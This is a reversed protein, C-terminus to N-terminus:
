DRPSPSTYLLCPSLPCCGALFIPSPRLGRSLWQAVAPGQHLGRPVCRLRLSRVPGDTWTRTTQM